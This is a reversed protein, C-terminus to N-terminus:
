YAYRDKKEVLWLWFFSALGGVLLLEDQEDSEYM